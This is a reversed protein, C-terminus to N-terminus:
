ESFTRFGVLVFQDKPEFNESLSMIHKGCNFIESLPATKLPLQFDQESTDLAFLINLAVIEDSGEKFCVISLKENLLIQYLQSFEEVAEPDELVDKGKAFTEEGLYQEHTMFAIADAYREMPLDQIWYEVLDESESDKAQFRAYVRPFSDEVHPRKWRFM